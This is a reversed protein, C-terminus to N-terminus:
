SLNYFMWIIFVLYGSTLCIGELRNIKSDIIFLLFLLTAVAMIPLGFQTVNFTVILPSILAPIGAIAFSNFINSGVINGIAVSHKGKRTANISVILEPLSTGLALASLAIIDEGVGLMASIKQLSNILYVASFYIAAISAMFILVHKTISTETIIEEEEKINNKYMCTALFVAMLILAVLADFRGFVNDFCSIILWIVSIILLPIFRKLEKLNINIKGNVIATIGLILLINSTNSGVVTSLVVESSGKLVTAISSALEPLSTGLAVLTIGIIHQPIKLHNGIVLSADVFFDSSKILLILSGLFVLSWFIM